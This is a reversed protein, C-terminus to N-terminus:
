KVGGSAAFGFIIRVYITYQHGSRLLLLSAIHVSQDPKQSFSAVPAAQAVIGPLVGIGQYSFDHGPM